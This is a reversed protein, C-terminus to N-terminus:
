SFVIHSLIPITLLASLFTGYFVARQSLRYSPSTPNIKRYLQRLHSSYNSAHCWEPNNSILEEYHRVQSQYSELQEESDTSVRAYAAVRLTSLHIGKRRNVAQKTAKRVQVTPNAM